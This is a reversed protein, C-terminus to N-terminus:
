RAAYGHDEEHGAGPVAGAAVDEETLLRLGSRALLAAAVGHGSRLRGSFTGDYTEGVGCSPSRAKLVAGRVGALRAVEVASAAGRLFADTVDDGERTCVRSVGDLVEDGAGGQIEAPRRPTPLGGLQEPCVPVLVADSRLAAVAERTRAGGDFRTPLGLLCASM